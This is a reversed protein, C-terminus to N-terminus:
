HFLDSERRRFSSLESAQRHPNTLDLIVNALVSAREVPLNFGFWGLGGHRVWFRTNGDRMVAVQVMPDGQARAAAADEGDDRAPPCAPIPPQMAARVASLEHILIELQAADYAGTIELEAHKKDSTLHM